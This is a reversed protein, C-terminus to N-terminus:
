PHCAIGILTKSRNLIPTTVDSMPVGKKTERMRELALRADLRARAPDPLDDDISTGSSDLYPSPARGDLRGVPDAFRDISFSSLDTPTSGTAILEALVDGVGPGLQFGAGSFGFAYFLGDVRRSSGLIPQADRRSMGHQMAEYIRASQEPRSRMDHSNKKNTM